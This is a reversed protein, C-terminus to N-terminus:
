ASDYTLVSWLECVYNYTRGETAAGEEVFMLESCPRGRLAAGVVSEGVCLIM